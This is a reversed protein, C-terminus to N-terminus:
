FPQYSNLWAEEVDADPVGFGASSKVLRLRSPLAVSIDEPRTVLLTKFVYRWGSVSCECSM